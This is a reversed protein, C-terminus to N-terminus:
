ETFNSLTHTPYGCFRSWGIMYFFHALFGRPQQRKYPIILIPGVVLLLWAIGGFLVGAIYFMAIMTIESSDFWLVQLPLHLYCPLQEDM